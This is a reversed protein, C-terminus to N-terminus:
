PPDSSHNQEALDTNGHQAHHHDAMPHHGGRLAALDLGRSLNDGDRNVQQRWSPRM